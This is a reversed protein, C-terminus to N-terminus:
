LINEELWIAIGDSNNDKTLFNAVCKVEDIANAMAVGIGCNQVMGVDNVDDGFAVIEKADIGLHTTTAAMANWKTAEKHAIRVLEEGSYQLADMEPFHALLENVSKLNVRANIKNIPVDFGVVPDFEEVRFGAAAKQVAYDTRADYANFYGGDGQTSFGIRQQHLKLAFETACKANISQVFVRKDGVLAVAGGDYILVDPTFFDTALKAGFDSRATAFGILIGKDRCKQLANINRSSVTKSSNLLTDDLDTVIMKIHKM